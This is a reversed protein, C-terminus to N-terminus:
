TCSLCSVSAVGVPACVPPCRPANKLIQLRGLGDAQDTRGLSPPAHLPLQSSQTSHRLVRREVDRQASIALDWRRFKRGRRSSMVARPWSISTRASTDPIRTWTRQLHRDAVKGGVDVSDVYWHVAPAPYMRLRLTLAVRFDGDVKFRSVGNSVGLCTM